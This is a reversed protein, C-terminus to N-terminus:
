IWDVDEWEAEKLLIRINIRGNNLPKELPVKGEPREVLIKYANIVEGYMSCVGGM